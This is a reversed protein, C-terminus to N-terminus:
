ISFLANDLMRPQDLIIGLLRYTRDTIQSVIAEKVTLSTDSNVTTVHYTYLNNDDAVVEIPLIFGYQLNSLMDYTFSTGSGTITHSGPTASITTTIGPNPTVDIISVTNDSTNGAWINAGDYALAWPNNGVNYVSLYNDHQLDIRTVSASGYNATYINGDAYIVNKPEGGIGLSWIHVTEQNWWIVEYMNHSTYCTIWMHTGDFAIANPNTGVNVTAVLTGTIKNLVSVNHSGYNVVWINVGDTALAEPETGVSFTGMTDGNAADLKTVTADGYNATWIAYGDYLIASPDNGVDYTGVVAKTAVDIKTVNADGENNTWLNYGDFAFGYPESGVSITTVPIGSTANIVSINASESNEVWLYGDDYFMFSPGTGVTFTGKVVGASTLQTVNYGDFNSVFVYGDSTSLIQTPNTGVTVTQQPTTHAGKYLLEMNIATSYAPIWNDVFTKYNHVTNTYIPTPMLYNDNKDRPQWVRVYLISLPSFWFHGEPIPIGNAPTALEPYGSNSNPQLQYNFELDIFIQGLVGQIYQFVNTYNNSTGFLAQDLAITTQIQQLNDPVLNQGVVPINYIAAWRRAYVSISNPSFQNSILRIFNLASMQAMAIAYAEVWAASGQIQTVASGMSALNDALLLALESYQEAAGSLYLLSM